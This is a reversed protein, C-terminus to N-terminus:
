TLAFNHNQDNLHPSLTFNQVLQSTLAFDCSYLAFHGMIHEFRGDEQEIMGEHDWSPQIEEM